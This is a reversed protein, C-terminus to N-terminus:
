TTKMVKNDPDIITLELMPHDQSVEVKDLLQFELKVDEEAPIEDFICKEKGESLLFHLCNSTSIFLGIIALIRLLLKM